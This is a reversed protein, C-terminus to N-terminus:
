RVDIDQTGFAKSVETATDKHMESDFEDSGWSHNLLLEVAPHSENLGINTELVRIYLKEAAICRIRPFQHRLFDCVFCIFENSNSSSGIMGCSVNLIATLSQTDTCGKAEERLNQLLSLTFAEKAVLSDLCMRNLLSDITKLLPLTVRGEHQHRDFLELFVTVCFLSNLYSVSDVRCLLFCSHYEVNEMKGAGLRDLNAEDANRAWQIVVFSANETVSQTICGVSVILGSIVFEFYEDIAAVVMVMPFTTTADSWNICDLECRSSPVLIECLRERSSLYPKMPANSDLFSLLCLAAEARVSDLKESLQKLLLGVIQRCKQNSFYENDIDSHRSAMTALTVLGRMAAVRCKSGVDGRRDMNYDGMALFHAAFVANIQKASVGVVRNEKDDCPLLGVTECIRALAILANRRTEADKDSGVKADPRSAQCLCTLSLDLVESSPALLKAPLRGLAMSFGRTAAPNIGTRVAKTYKDVVRLQLRESPGRSTVPFYSRLLYLLAKGAQEQIMENPHPICADISDLLRVQQPVTLPVKSISLCEILRCVAARMQEGGKGRYLRKKEIAPVTDAISKNTEASLYKKGDEMRGFALVLEALGLTSGHRVQFNKEDLCQELLRPVVVDVMYNPYMAALVGLSESALNRISPDWHSLKIQYVHNIIARSYEEFQAVHLAIVAYADKRNGLSYYDAATLISIGNQFNQTGQRGVMEQFAASAARRCNVERDFLFAVVISEGLQSVFPKMMDPSYARALAWYTYCAADRVNSGVSTQRRPVDYQIAAVIKPMVDKLRRPLLLGRRALEALALCAGHWDNDKELNDFVTLIADLVDEACISPLRGAIRGVGKAASWRVVTSSDKLAELVYGTIVEVEDPVVFFSDEEVCDMGKANGISGTSEASQQKEEAPSHSQQLNNKLSRRGMQYRWSAIRPPLYLLGLRTWWKVLFKRLLLNSALQQTALQTSLKILLSWYSKVMYSLVKERPATSVKLMTVLTQLVGLTAFLDTQESFSRTAQNDPGSAYGNLVGKSWSEFKRQFASDELDPRTLWSALCAAAMERTPGTKCLHSVGLERIQSIQASDIVVRWDFPVKGLIGMWNWLTYMSEWLEPRGTMVSGFDNPNSESPQQEMEQRQSMDHLTHLTTLVPEVDEVRHPLFKQVRKRGRVKSLAYLASLIRPLPSAWFSSAQREKGVRLLPGAAQTLEEIMPAIYGDLLSPLELYRDLITRLEALNQDNSHYNSDSRVVTVERICRFARQQEVFIVGESSSSATNEAADPCALKLDESSRGEDTPATPIEHKAVPESSM